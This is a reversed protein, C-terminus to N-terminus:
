ISQCCYVKGEKSAKGANNSKLYTEVISFTGDPLNAPAIIWDNVISNPNLLILM